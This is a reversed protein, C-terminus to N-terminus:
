YAFHNIPITKEYFSTLKSMKNLNKKFIKDEFHEKGGGWRDNCPSETAKKV